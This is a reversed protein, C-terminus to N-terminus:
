EGCDVAIQCGNADFGVLFGPAGRRWPTAADPILRLGEVAGCAGNAERVQWGQAMAIDIVADRRTCGGLTAAAHYESLERYYELRLEAREKDLWSKAGILGVVGMAGLGVLRRVLALPNM